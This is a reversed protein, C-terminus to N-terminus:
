NFALMKEEKLLQDPLIVGYVDEGIQCGKNFIVNNDGPFMVNDEVISMLDLSVSGAVRDVRVGVKVDGRQVVVIREGHMLIGTQWDFYGALDVVSIIEGRLSTVGQVWFPINPLTTLRPMDGIEAVNSIPILLKLEGCEVVVCRQQNGSREEDVLSPTFQLHDEIGDLTQDIGSILEDLSKKQTNNQM